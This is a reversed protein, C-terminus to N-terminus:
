QFTSFELFDVLLFLCEIILLFFHDIRLYRLGFAFSHCVVELDHDLMSHLGGLTEFLEMRLDDISTILFLLLLSQFRHFHLGVM